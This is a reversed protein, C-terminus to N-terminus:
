TKQGRKVLPGLKLNRFPQFSSVVDLYGDGDVDCLHLRAMQDENELTVRAAKRFTWDDNLIYICGDQGVFDLFGDRDIDGFQQLPIPTNNRSCIYSETEQSALLVFESPTERYVRVRCLTPAYESFGATHSIRRSPGSLHESCVALEAQHDSDFDLWHYETTETDGIPVPIATPVIRHRLHKEQLFGLLARDPDAPLVLTPANEKTFDLGIGPGTPFMAFEWGGDNTSIAITLARGRHLRWFKPISLLEMKGNSSLDTGWIDVAVPQFCEWLPAFFARESSAEDESSNNPVYVPEFSGATNYYIGMACVVDSDGDLDIDLLRGCCQALDDIAHRNKWDAFSDGRGAFWYFNGAVMGWYGHTMLDVNKDGDINGFQLCDFSIRPGHWSPIRIIAIVVASIVAAAVTIRIVTRKM